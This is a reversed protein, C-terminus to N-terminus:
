RSEREYWLQTSAAATLLSSIICLVAGDGLCLVKLVLAVAAATAEEGDRWEDM